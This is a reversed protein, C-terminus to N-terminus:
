RRKRADELRQFAEESQLELKFNESAHYGRTTNSERPANGEGPTARPSREVPSYEFIPQNPNNDEVMDPKSFAETADARRRQLLEARDVAEQEHPRLEPDLGNRKLTEAVRAAHNTENPDNIAKQVIANRHSDTITQNAQAIQDAADAHQKAVAALKDQHQQQEAQMDEITQRQQAEKAQQDLAKQHDTDIAEYERADSMKKSYDNVTDRAAKFVSEAADANKKGINRGQWDQHEADLARHAEAPDDSHIAVTLMNSLDARLKNIQKRYAPTPEVDTQLRQLIKNRDFDNKLNSTPAYDFLSKQGAGTLPAAPQASGQVPAPTQPKDPVPTFLNGQSGEPAAAMQAERAGPANAVNGQNDAYLVPQDHPLNPAYRPLALPAPRKVPSAAGFLSPQEGTDASAQRGSLQRDLFQMGPHSLQQDVKGAADLYKYYDERTDADAAARLLRSREGKLNALDGPTYAPTKEPAQPGIPLNDEPTNGFLDKNLDRNVGKDAEGSKLLDANQTEAVPKKQFPHMAAGFAGGVIGGSVAQNAYEGLADSDSVSEGSAARSAASVTPNIAAQEAASRGASQLLNRQVTEEAAKGFAGRIAGGAGGAVGLAGALTGAGLAAPINDQGTERQKERVDGYTQTGMAGAMLGGAALEGGALGAAIGGVALPAAEAVREGAYGLASGVGHIDSLSPYAAPNAEVVGKGYEELAGGTEPYVDKIASGVGQALGGVGRKLSPILQAGKSEPKPLDIGALKFAQEPTTGDDFSYLGLGPLYYQVAM